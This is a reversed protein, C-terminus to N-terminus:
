GGTKEAAAAAHDLLIRQAIELGSILTAKIENVRAVKEEAAGKLTSREGTVNEIQQSLNALKGELEAIAASLAPLDTKELRILEPYESKGAMVSSLHRDTLQKREEALAALDADAQATAEQITRTTAAARLQEVKQTLAVKTSDNGSLSSLCLLLTEAEIKEAQETETYKPEITASQSSLKEKEARLTGERASLAELATRFANERESTIRQLDALRAQASDREASKAALPQDVETDKQSLLVSLRGDLDTIAIAVAKLETSLQELEQEPTAAQARAAAL